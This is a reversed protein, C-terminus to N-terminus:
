LVVCNCVARKRTNGNWPVVGPPNFMRARRVETSSHQNIGDITSFGHHEGLSGGCMSWTKVGM